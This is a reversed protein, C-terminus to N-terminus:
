AEQRVIFISILPTLSVSQTRRGWVIQLVRQASLDFKEALYILREGQAHRPRNEENRQCKTLTHGTLPVLSLKQGIVMLVTGCGMADVLHQLAGGWVGGRERCESVPM